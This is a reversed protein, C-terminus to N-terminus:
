KKIGMIDLLFAYEFATERLYGFRGSPGAHGSSLDIKLLLPNSDTKMRRLRAVWKAPEWYPVNADNFGGTVLMAPYGQGSINEYPAYSAMYEYHQRIRPDGWEQYEATTLPITPDLMTNIMDLFPVDLVAARFLDPRRNLVAGVLLGGASGGSVALQSPATYGQAVLHEACAIFDTFTNTKKLLRGDDYWRRGMEQGGRVHAIAFIFGRDLLSLRHSSFYTESSTGYSGYGHLLCPNGGERRLGKRYVLSIPVREGDPAAAYIRESQYRAPDYGGRVEHQKLLRYENAAMDYDYVAGPTVLSSYTYRLLASGYDYSRWPFVAYAPEPFALYRDGAGDWSRVRLRVLGDQREQLVCHGRFMRVDELLVDDRGPIVENWGGSPWDHAPASVLRFNRHADNTLVYLSDGHHDLYYEVGASRARFLRFSAEPSDAPCIRAETTTKSYSHILLYGRSKTRRVDVSFEPDDERYVAQDTLPSTGLAHRVIRDTRNASDCAEYFVTANDNAWAMGHASSISDILRGTRLDKFYITYVFSGSTDALYALVAHDPSIITGDISYYARGGALRNEDLLVEERAALGGKKRCYVSYDKGRITRSYYYFSDAKVPVSLDSERIRGRLERYIRDRLKRAHSMMSDAYANEAALYAMVAPNERERLWRFEDSRVRGHISDQWPRLPAVPPAPQAAAIASFFIIVSLILSYRM